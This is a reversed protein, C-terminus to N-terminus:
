WFKGLPNKPDFNMNMLKDTDKLAKATIKTTQLYFLLKPLVHDKIIALKQDPKLAARNINVFWTPLNGFLQCSTSVPDKIFWNYTWKSEAVDQKRSVDQM